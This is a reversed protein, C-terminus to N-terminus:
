NVAVHILVIKSELPLPFHKADQKKTLSLVVVHLCFTKQQGNM